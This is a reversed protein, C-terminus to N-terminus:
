SLEHMPEKSVEAVIKKRPAHPFPLATIKMGATVENGCIRQGKHIHGLAGYTAGAGLEVLNFGKQDLEGWNVPYASGSYCAVIDPAILALDEHGISIGGEVLQGNAMEAGVIAGHYLMIAPIESHEARKAGLGLLISRMGAKVKENAEDASLGNAGALFWEKGPEPCGLVLCREEGTDHIICDGAALLHFGGIRTLAEYCGALDHTATGSVAYIPAVALMRAILDLLRPLGGGASNQIGRNFLDGALTWFDIRARKGAELAAEISKAAADQNERDYHVDALHIFRISM